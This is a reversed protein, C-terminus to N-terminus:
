FVIHWYNTIFYYFWKFKYLGTFSRATIIYKIWNQCYSFLLVATQWYCLNMQNWPLNESEEEVGWSWGRGRLNYQFIMWIAKEKMYCQFTQNMWLMLKSKARSTNSLIIWELLCNIWVTWSFLYKLLVTILRNLDM